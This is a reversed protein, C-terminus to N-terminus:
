CTRLLREWSPLGPGRGCRRLKSPLDNEELISGRASERLASAQAALGIRKMERAGQNASAYVWHAAVLPLRQSYSDPVFGAGAVLDLSSMGEVPRTREENYRTDETGNLGPSTREHADHATETSSNATQEVNGPGNKGDHLEGDSNGNQDHTRLSGRESLPGAVFEDQGVSPVVWFHAVGKRTVPDFDLV